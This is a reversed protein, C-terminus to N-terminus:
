LRTLGVAIRLAADVRELTEAGLEGYKGLIRRKDLARLQMLLVKSRQPLGGEPPEVLTEFPYVRETKRSTIAAVLIVPSHDNILDPSIVLGPREGSQESGEAPDLRVRVIDGRRLPKGTAV